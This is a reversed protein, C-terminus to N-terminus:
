SHLTADVSSSNGSHWDSTEHDEAFIRRYLDEGYSTPLPDGEILRFTRQGDPLREARLFLSNDTKQRCFSHALDFLHTVFFVKIGVKLLARVIQRAIESGERENTSAFSENFLIMSHPTVVDIIASMRSLEEDLKGSKMRTDEERKFHTFISECINARFSVAPVYMGSQMMIQAIGISRLFTSKGGRNAGTIIGLSKGDASIDNGALRCNMNLSLCLDYLGQSLLITKDSATPAPFCLPENKQTIREHLNLCGIYFALELRLLKFFNLIHDASQTLAAAVLSVGRDRLEELANFGSEDRDAVRYVFHDLFVHQKIWTSLRLSWKQMIPQARLVYHTGKNGRGLEASVLVGHRFALKQLHDEIRHLYNDGLERRFMSFLSTFGESDFQAANTDAFSKLKRLIEVFLQVAQVSRHLVGEPSHISGWGWLTRERELADVSIAYLARVLAPHKLCDALISQRYLIADTEHLGKLIACQAVQLLVDDGAAMTTFIADLGLDQVLAIEHLSRSADLDFDRDKHMLFANM